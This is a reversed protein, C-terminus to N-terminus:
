QEELPSITGSTWGSGGLATDGMAGRGTMRVSCLGVGWPATHTVSVSSSQMGPPSGPHFGSNMYQTCHSQTGIRAGGGGGSSPCRLKDRGVRKLVVGGGWGGARRASGREEGEGPLALGGVPTGAPVVPVRLGELLWCGCGRAGSATCVAGCTVVPPPGPPPCSAPYPSACVRVCPRPDPACCRLTPVPHPAARRVM